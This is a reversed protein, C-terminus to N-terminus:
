TNAWIGGAPSEAEEERRRLAPWPEGGSGAVPLFRGLLLLLLPMSIAPLLQCIYSGQHGTLSPPMLGQWSPGAGPIAGEM